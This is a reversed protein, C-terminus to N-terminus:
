TEVALHSCLGYAFMEIILIERLKVVFHPRARDPRAPHCEWEIRLRRIFCLRIKM